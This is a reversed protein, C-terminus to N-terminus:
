HVTHTYRGPPLETTRVFGPRAAIVDPIRRVLGMPVYLRASFGPLEVVTDVEGHITFSDKSFASADLIEFRLNGTFTPGEETPFSVVFRAGAVRGPELMIEPVFWDTPTDHIIPTIEYSTEGPTFGLLRALERLPAGQVPPAALVPEAWAAFDSVALGLGAEHLGVEQSFRGCNAVDDMEVSTIRHNGAAAVAPLHVWWTDQMGTSVISAGGAEGAAQLSDAFPGQGEFLEADLTLVNIGRRLLGAALEATAATPILAALAVVDPEGAQAILEEISGFITSDPVRPHDVFEGLPRGVKAGVEVGGLLEHGLDLALRSISSGQAGLGVVALRAAPQGASLTM